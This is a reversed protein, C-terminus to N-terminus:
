RLVLASYSSLTGSRLLCRYWEPVCQELSQALGAYCHLVNCRADSPRGCTDITLHMNVYFTSVTKHSPGPHCSCHLYGEVTLMCFSSSKKPFDTWRVHLLGRPGKPTSTSDIPRYDITQPQHFSLRTILFGAPSALHALIIACVRTPGDRVEQGRLLMFYKRAHSSCPRGGRSVRM